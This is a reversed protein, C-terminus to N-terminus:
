CCDTGPTLHKCAVTNWNGTKRWILVIIIRTVSIPIHHKCSYVFFISNRFDVRVCGINGVAVQETTVKLYFHPLGFLFSVCCCLMFGAFTNM